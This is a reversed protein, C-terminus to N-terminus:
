IWFLASEVLAEKAVRSDVEKGIIEAFHDFTSSLREARGRSLGIDIFM